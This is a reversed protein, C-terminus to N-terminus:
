GTKATPFFPKTLPGFQKTAALRHLRKVPDRGSNRCIVPTICPAGLRVWVTRGVSSQDRIPWQGLKEMVISGRIARQAIRDKAPELSMAKTAALM